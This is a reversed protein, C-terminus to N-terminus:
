KNYLKKLIYNKNLVKSAKIKTYFPYDLNLNVRTIIDINSLNPNNEKYSLYRDINKYKFYDIKKDIDDLLKLKQHLPDNNNKNLFLIFTMVVILIFIVLVYIFIKKM